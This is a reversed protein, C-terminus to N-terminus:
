LSSLPGLETSYIKSESITSANNRGQGGGLNKSEEYM